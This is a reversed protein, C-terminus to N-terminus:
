TTPRPSRSRWRSRVSSTSAPARSWRERGAHLGSPTCISVLDIDPGSTRLMEDLTKYWPVGQEEGARQARTADIDCVATVKLGDVKKLAEFHTKSIRGCGVLAVRFSRQSEDQSM